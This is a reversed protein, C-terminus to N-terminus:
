ESIKYQRNTKIEISDITNALNNIFVARRVCLCPYFVWPLPLVFPKFFNKVQLPTLKTEYEKLQAENQVLKSKLQDREDRLWRNSESLAPITQVKEL